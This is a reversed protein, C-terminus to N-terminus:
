CPPDQINLVNKLVIIYPNQNPNAPDTLKVTVDTYTGEAALTTDTLGFALTNASTFLPQIQGSQTPAIKTVQTLTFKVSVCAAPAIGLVDAEIETYPSTDIPLGSVLDALNLIPAFSAGRYVLIPLATSVAM